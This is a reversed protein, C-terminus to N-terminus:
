RLRSAAREAESAIVDEIRGRNSDVAPELFPHAPRYRTGKEEFVAYEQPNGKNRGARPKQWRATDSETYKRPQGLGPQPGIRAELSAGRGQLKHGLSGQLKGTVRHVNTKASGEVIVAAKTFGPRLLSDLLDGDSLKAALEAAGKVTVHIGDAM